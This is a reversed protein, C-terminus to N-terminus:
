YKGREVSGRDAVQTQGIEPMLVTEDDLFYDFVLATCRPEVLWSHLALHVPHQQYAKLEDSGAFEMYLLRSYGNTRTGTIDAGLRLRTMGGIAVPWSAVQSQMDAADLASLEEPFSFAVIHQLM